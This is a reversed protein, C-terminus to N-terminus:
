ARRARRTAALRDTTPVAERTTACGRSRSGPMRRAKGDPGCTGPRKAADRSCWVAPKKPSSRSGTRTSRCHRRLPIGCSNRTPSRYRTDSRLQRYSRKATWVAILLGLTSSLVLLIRWDYGGVDILYAIGSEWLSSMHFGAEAVSGILAFLIWIWGFFGATQHLLSAVFRGASAPWVALRAPHRPGYGRSRLWARLPEWSLYAQRLAVLVAPMLAVALALRWSVRNDTFLTRGERSIQHINLAAGVMPVAVHLILSTWVLCALTHHVLRALFLGARAPWKLIASVFSKMVSGIRLPRVIVYDIARHALM